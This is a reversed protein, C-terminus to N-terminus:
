FEIKAWGLPNGKNDIWISTQYDLKKSLQKIFVKRLSNLSKSGAGAHQGIKILGKEYKPHNAIFRKTEKSHIISFFRDISKEILEISLPEKKFYRNKINKLLNTDIRIEGEFEGDVLCELVVPINNNDREKISRNKPKIIKLKYNIPKLDSVFLAKLIDKKPDKKGNCFVKGELKYINKENISFKEVIYDLLATRIVGKITSGPIIPKSLFKDKIFTNLSSFNGKYLRKIAEFDTDVCYSVSEDAYERIFKLLNSYINKEILAIFEELLGDKEIKKIFKNRDIFCIKNEYLLYDLLYYDQPYYEEDNGIFIPTKITVKMDSEMLTSVLVIDM